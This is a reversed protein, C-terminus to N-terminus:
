AYLHIIQSSAHSFANESDKQLNHYLKAYSTSGYATKIYAPSSKANWGTFNRHYAYVRAETIPNRWVVLNCGGIPYDAETKVNLNLPYLLETFCDVGASANIVQPLCMGLYVTDCRMVGSLDILKQVWGDGFSHETKSTIKGNILTHQYLSIERAALPKNDVFATVLAGDIIWRPDDVKAESGHFSGVLAGKDLDRLAYDSAGSNAVYAEQTPKRYYAWDDYDFKANAYEPTDVNAGLIYSRNNSRSVVRVAASDMPTNLKVKRIRVKTSLTFVTADPTVSTTGDPNVSPLGDGKDVYVDLIGASGITRLFSLSFDGNDDSSPTIDVYSGIGSAVSGGVCFANEAGSTTGSPMGLVAATFNFDEWGPGSYVAKGYSAVISEYAFALECAFASQERVLDWPADGDAASARMRISVYEPRSPNKSLIYYSDTAYRVIIAGSKQLAPMVGEVSESVDFGSLRVNRISATNKMVGPGTIETSGNGMVPVFAMDADSNLVYSNGDLKVFWGKEAAAAAAAAFATAGAGVAYGYQEPTTFGIGGIRGVGSALSLLDWLTTSYKDLWLGPGVGGTSAPTSGQPVDKGGVPFVGDWNYAHGDAEYLLVDTATTVTGGLEFSGPVLTFGAEAYTRRLAERASMAKSIRQIALLLQDDDTKSPDIGAADLVNLVENTIANFWDGGPVTPPVGAGGETFYKRVASAVPKRAPETDVGTQTDPWYM